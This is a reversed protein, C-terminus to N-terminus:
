ARPNDPVSVKAECFEWNEGVQDAVVRWMEERIKTYAIRLNQLKIDNWRGVNGVGTTDKSISFPHKTQSGQTRDVTVDHDLATTSGAKGQPLVDLSERDTREAPRRRLMGSARQTQTEVALSDSTRHLLNQSRVFGIFKYAPREVLLNWAIIPVSVLVLTSHSKYVGQIQVDVRLIDWPTATGLWTTWQALDLEAEQAVAISLLVRTDSSQYRLASSLTSNEPVTGELEVTSNNYPDTSSEKVCDLEAISSLSTQPIPSIAISSGGNESLLAYIPTFALRWRMTVLRSHLMAVTFPTTGFAQLEEVLVSTFSRDCVGLTPNERGCAALIEKTSGEATDRAANAAFCCDLIILVHPVATELLHQLSSWNLCPSDLRNNRSLRTLVQIMRSASLTSLSSLRGPPSAVLFIPLRCPCLDECIECLLLTRM